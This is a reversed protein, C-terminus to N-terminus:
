RMTFMREADLKVLIFFLISFAIISSGGYSIYPLPIGIIPLIGITMGINVFLHFFIISAVGYAYIRSFDSRQREAVFIIKILLFLYIMIVIFSGIFGFEEGITCFIFDTIQEPVFNGKTQTGQLYGKGTLGGSGIAIKSQHLNYGIGKTDEVKGLIVDIRQQQHPKLIYKYGFSVGQLYTSCFLVFVSLAISFSKQWNAFVMLAIVFLGGTIYISVNVPIRLPLVFCLIAVLVILGVQWWGTNSRNFFYLFCSLTIIIGMIVTYELVLGLVFLLALFLLIILIFGSLGQRYFVFIFSSFVLASGTDGQLIVLFAPVAVILFSVIQDTINKINFSRGALFAALILATGMKAFEAPQLSFGGIEFWSMSGFKESGLFLVLILAILVALYIVPSIVNFFRHDFLQIIVGIGLSVAIWLLQKGATSKFTLGLDGFNTSDVSYVVAWGIGVLLLYIIVLVWDIHGFLKKTAESM